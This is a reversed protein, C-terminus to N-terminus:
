NSKPWYYIQNESSTNAINLYKGCQDWKVWATAGSAYVTNMGDPIHPKDPMSHSLDMLAKGGTDVIGERGVTLCAWLPSTQMARSSKTLYPQKTIWLTSNQPYNFYQYTIYRYDYEKLTTGARLTEPNRYRYMDGPCFLVKNRMDSLYPKFFAENLVTQGGMNVMAHPYSKFDDGRSPFFDRNSNAYTIGAIQIQHLNTACIVKKAYRRAKGLSPVVISLLMAIIAIVVLLEILTFAKKKM